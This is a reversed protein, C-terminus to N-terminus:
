LSLDELMGQKKLNNVMNLVQLDGYGYVGEQKIFAKFLSGFSCHGEAYLNLITQEPRSPHTLRDQHAQIVESIRPLVGKLEESCKKMNKIEGKAYNQWLASIIELHHKELNMRKKFATHLDDNNMGGFGSWGLHSPRVIFYHLPKLDSMRKLYAVAFWLNTQCFLDDEFWLNVESDDEINKLREIEQRVKKHYGHGDEKFIKDIYDARSSWFLENFHNSLPGEM